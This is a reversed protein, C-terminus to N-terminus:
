EITLRHKVLARWDFSDRLTFIDPSTSVNFDSNQIQDFSQARDIVFFGRHGPSDSLKAGIRDAGGSNVVEFYDVQMFVFFVNSRTTTHGDMKSLLHHRALYNISRNDHQTQTGLEFLHRKVVGPGAATGDLPLERLMTHNISNSGDAVYSFDRFPRSASTGPLYLKSIPDERDRAQKFQVWWDRGAEAADPTNSDPLYSTQGTGPLFPNLGAFAERDDILAALTEPSRITNWNINGPLGVRNNATMMTPVEIMSFLRYWRNDNKPSSGTSDSNPRLFLQEGATHTGRLDHGGTLNEPGYTPINLLEMVSGFDRDGPPSWLEFNNPSNSNNFGFSNPKFDTRNNNAEPPTTPPVVNPLVSSRALPEAREWSKLDDMAQSMMASVAPGDEVGQPIQLEQYGHGTGTGLGIQIEDVTVWPNDRNYASNDSETLATPPVARGTHVRRQLQFLLHTSGDPKNNSDVLGVMAPPAPISSQDPDTALEFQSPDDTLLDLRSSDLGRPILQGLPDTYDPAMGASSDYDHDTVFFSPLPNGMADLNEADGASLVQYRSGGPINDNSKFVLRRDRTLTTPSIDPNPQVLIRWAGNDGNTAGDGNNFNFSFPSANRLELFTFYRDKTDDFETVPNDADMMSADQYKKARVVLGESFTLQQHEVGYVVGRDEAVSLLPDTDDYPNDDLNWGDSLDRDYEFLDLVNDRDLANVMNIAFQAMIELQSADYLEREDDEPGPGNAATVGNPQRYDRDEGGCYFYLLTYIDRALLQRDYRAWYEREQANTPPFPPPSSPTFPLPANGPNSPHETLVRNLLNSSGDSDLVSDLVHNISLRRQREAQPTGTTLDRSRIRLIRRLENRFPDRGTATVGVGFGTAGVSPPDFPAPFEIINRDNLSDFAPSAPVAAEWPRTAGPVSGIEGYFSKGFTKLDWSQPTFKRRIDAARVNDRFNYPLLNLLRSDLGVGAIDSDALQLGAAESFGFVDDSENALEPHAESEAPEDLLQDTPSGPIFVGGMYYPMLNGSETLGWRVTSRNQFGRYELWLFPPSITSDFLRVNKNRYFQGTGSFDLPHVYARQGPLVAEGANRNGNDDIGTKGPGSFDTRRGTNLATILRNSEGYMGARINTLSGSSNFEPAGVKLMMFEMNAAELDSTPLHGFFTQHRSFFDSLPSGNPRDGGGSQQALRANLAFLPNVESPTIGLNSQSISDVAGRIHNYGFVEAALATDPDSASFGGKINGHVSLNLLGDADLVTIGFMPIFRRGDGLQQVPFDLDLWVAERIGDGDADVDYEYVPNLTTYPPNNPDVAVWNLGSSGDNIVNTLGFSDWVPEAAGSRGATNCRFAITTAHTNQGVAMVLDGVRYDTNARWPSIDWVGQQGQQPTDPSTPNVNVAFPFPGSALPDLIGNGNTDEGVDLTLNGNTDEGLQFNEFVTRIYRLGLPVAGNTTADQHSPHARLVKRASNPSAFWDDLSGNGANQVQRDENPDLFLDGDVDEPFVNATRLISPRHYSPIIVRHSRHNVDLAFGRYSLFVNNIDPYTYDVDPFPYNNAVYGAGTGGRAAPSDNIELLTDGDANGDFDQDVAPLGNADTIINIGRGSFPHLDRGYMNAMLSHRGGWLASNTLEKPAGIIVQKLAWDFFLNPNIGPDTFEKSADAFYESNKKEQAAFTYFLFGLVALLGLLAMVVVLVAGSRPDTAGNQVSARKHTHPRSRTKLTKM